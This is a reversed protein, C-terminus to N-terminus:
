EEPPRKVCRWHKWDYLAAEVNDWYWGTCYGCKTCVVRDFVTESEIKAKGGCEQCPPFNISSM